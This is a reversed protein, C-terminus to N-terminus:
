QEEQEQEEEEGVHTGENALLDTATILEHRILAGYMSHGANLPIRLELEPWAEALDLATDVPCIEDAGGHVAICRPILERMRVMKDSNEKGLPDWNNTAFRDNVSYYCTLMAQAPIMKAAEDPTMKDTQYAPVPQVPRPGYQELLPVTSTIGKRLRQAHKTPSKDTDVPNGFSDSYRFSDGQKVLVLPTKQEQQQQQELAKKARASVSMEWQMWRQAAALRGVPDTTSMLRDYYGHLAERHSPSSSQEVGVFRQFEDWGGPEHRAIGSGDGFLWDVEQPRLLCVGRLVMSQISRPYEQGYAVALTSGWSGGLVVHWQRIGLHTRIRECDNVLHNLTNDRTEGKPTSRGSGRQDLLVIRYRSPDFFRAHNSNCGAGPGGHLFLAPLGNPNGYEEYHLTHISDVRLDGTQFPSSPPYLECLKHVDNGDRVQQQQRQPEELSLTRESLATTTTTTTTTSASTTSPAVSQRAIPSIPSFATSTTVLIMALIGCLLCQSLRVSDNRMM